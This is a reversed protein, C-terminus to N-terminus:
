LFLYDITYNIFNNLFIKISGEFIDEHTNIM